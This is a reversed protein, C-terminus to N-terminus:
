NKVFNIAYNYADEINKFVAFVDYNDIEQDEATEVPEDSQNMRVANNPLELNVGEPYSGFFVEFRVHHFDNQFDYPNGLIDVEFISPKSGDDCVIYKYIDVHQYNSSFYLTSELKDLPIIM